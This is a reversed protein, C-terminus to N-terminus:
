GDWWRAAAQAPTLGDLEVAAHLSVLDATVLRASVEDLADRLDDGWRELVDTRVLPVVNEHPQLGLDDVLLMVPAVSLRADTTELLGVDIEGSVLAEVTAGRSPMSRVEGFHLGYVDELGKLCFPREPCEPPGGFVLGPALPALESLRGVGNEAGFATTVAFGNQDEAEAADLVSVGRDDLAEALATGLEEPTRERATADADTFAVATGLYDVVVDLVGQQLAPQVVERTGVAEQISVPLGARRVGEAYVEALIQNETFDYSAFRITADPDGSEDTGGSCAPLGLLLVAVAVLVPRPRV